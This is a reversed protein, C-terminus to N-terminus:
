YSPSKYNAIKMLLLHTGREELSQMSLEFLKQPLLYDKMCCVKTSIALLMGPNAGFLLM